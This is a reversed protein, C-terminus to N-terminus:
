NRQKRRRKRLRQPRPDKLQSGPISLSPAFNETTPFFIDSSKPAAIWRMLYTGDVLRVRVNTFMRNTTWSTPVTGAPNENIHVLAGRPESINVTVSPHSKPSLTAPEATKTNKCRVLWAGEGAPLIRVINSGQIDLKGQDSPKKGDITEYRWHSGAPLTLECDPNNPTLPQLRAVLRGSSPLVKRMPARGPAHLLVAVEENSPVLLRLPALGLSMGDAESIVEVKGSPTAEVLVDNSGNVLLQSGVAGSWWSHIDLVFSVAFACAILWVFWRAARDRKRRKKKPKAPPQGYHPPPMHPPM